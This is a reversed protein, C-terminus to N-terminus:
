AHLAGDVAARLAAAAAVHSFRQEVLARGNARLVAGEGGLVAGLARVGDATTEFRRLHVGDEAPLGEAGVATSVVPLGLAWAELIKIRTGGGSRIPLYAAHSARYHPLLDVAPGAVEVGPVGRFRAGHNGDDGGVLRVVLGPFAARLAPLHQGILETVAELNPPYDLRGVYLLRPPGPPAVPQLPLAALDVSNPVAVVNAGPALALALERDHDSVTVAAVARRLAAAEVARIRGAEVRRTIRERLPRTEEDARAFLSYELNHLFLLLRPGQPVVPLVFTSDAVVLDWPEAAVTRAVASAATAAWRRRLLESEGRLWCWLKEGMRGRMHARAPLAEVAAGLERALMAAHAREEDTIAAALLRVDHGVVLADLLVRSRISGGHRAPHPVFPAIVLIKAM